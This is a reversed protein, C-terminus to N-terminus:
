GKNCKAVWQKGKQQYGFTLQSSKHTALFQKRWGESKPSHRNDNVPIAKRIVFTEYIRTRGVVNTYIYPSYVDGLSLANTGVLIYERRVFAVELAGKDGNSHGRATGSKRVTNRGAIHASYAKRPTLKTYKWSNLTM